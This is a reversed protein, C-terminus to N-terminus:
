RKNNKLIFTCNESLKVRDCETESGCSQKHNERQMFEPMKIRKYIFLIADM